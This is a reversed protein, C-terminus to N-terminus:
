QLPAFPDTRGTQEPIIATHIDVLSTFRPNTFLSVDFSVPNLENTLQVFNAESPSTTASSSTLASSTDTNNGNFFILYGGLLVIVAAVIGGIIKTRKTLKM